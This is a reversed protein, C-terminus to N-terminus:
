LLFFFSRFHAPEPSRGVFVVRDLLEVRAESFVELMFSGGFVDRGCLDWRRLIRGLRDFRLGLCWLGFFRGGRGGGVFGFDGGRREVGIAPIRM